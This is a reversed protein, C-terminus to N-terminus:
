LEMPNKPYMRGDCDNNICEFSPQEKSNALEYINKFHKIIKIPFKSEAGCKNCKYEIYKAKFSSSNENECLKAFDVDLVKSIRWIAGLSFTQHYSSEIGSIFSLSYNIENALKEQTWGKLKRYKKVNKGIVEYIYNEDEENFVM